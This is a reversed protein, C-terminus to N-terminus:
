FGMCLTYPSDNDIGDAGAAQIGTPATTATNAMAQFSGTAPNGDDLAIDLQKVFKGPVGRSCVVYTGRLTAIPSSNGSTIGLQGGLTNHPLYDPDNVDTPGAALGALRIHQWFRFSEDTKTASNWTGEIIGNGQVEDSSSARCSAPCLKTGLHADVGADDGPLAKFKDQYTYVYIPINRFDATLNKAKANDILEQGKMVGGLMLGVIILVIAIEVLTFGTQSSKM